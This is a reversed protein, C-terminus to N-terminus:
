GDRDMPHSQGAFRVSTVAARVAEFPALCRANVTYREPHNRPRCFFHIGCNGCFRHEADGSGFQYLSLRGEGAILRLEDDEVACHLMGKKTCISCDCDLLREIPEAKIVEFRIAGCHCSGQYTPM